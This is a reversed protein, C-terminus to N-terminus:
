ECNVALIHQPGQVAPGTFTIFSQVQTHVPLGSLPTVGICMYTLM